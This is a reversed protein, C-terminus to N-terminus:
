ESNHPKIYKLCINKLNYNNIENLKSDLYLRKSFICQELIDYINKGIKGNYIEKNINMINNKSKSIIDYEVSLIRLYESKLKFNLEYESQKTSEFTEYIKTIATKLKDKVVGISIYQQVRNDQLISNIDNFDQESNDSNFIKYIQGCNDGIYDNFFQKITEDVNKDETINNLIEYFTPSLYMLPTESGYWNDEESQEQFLEYHNGISDYPDFHINYNLYFNNNNIDNDSDHSVQQIQNINSGNLQFGYHDTRLQHMQLNDNINNQEVSNSQSNYKEKDDYIVKLYINCWQMILVLM